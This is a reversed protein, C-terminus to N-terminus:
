AGAAPPEPASALLGRVKELIQAPKTTKTAYETAGLERLHAMEAPSAEATLMMVPVDHLAPDRRLRQLTEVGDMVPMTIDLVILDPRQEGAMRLGEAGDAAEFIDCACTGLAKRLFARMTKSDDILLVRRSM